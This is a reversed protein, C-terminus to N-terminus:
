PAHLAKLHDQIAQPSLGTLSPTDAATGGRILDYGGPTATLVLDCPAPHACGKPCGSLHLSRGAPLEAALTRALRRTEGRAQPCGPAGTCATVRLIPDEPDTVLGAIEPLATAGALLLMRWPTLTIAHGPGALAHLTGARMQGLALAVLAGEARLGPGPVPLPEAPAVTCGPPVAGTAVLAAMRGRGNRVGGAAVFWEAMGTADRALDTLRRGLPSGDPRLILGGDASRELRIDASAAALVPRPGTDVAFGFKGPLRPMGALAATLTAALTETGPDRFPTVILNRLSETEIDPDILGHARLDDILPAHSREAVGRLQLNARTSLDIIGNGHAEAARAIAAAQAASLRGFPPRIRVVLGDGSLMPRLAGPCWGKVEWGTM